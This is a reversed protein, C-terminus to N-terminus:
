KSPTKTTTVTHTAKGGIRTCDDASAALVTVDKIKCLVGVNIDDTGLGLWGTTPASITAALAENSVASCFLAITAFLIRQKM